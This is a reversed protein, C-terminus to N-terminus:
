DMLYAVFKNVVEKKRQCNRRHVIKEAEMGAGYITAHYRAAQYKNGTIEHGVIDSLKSKTMKEQLVFMSLVRTKQEEDKNQVAFDYVRRIDSRIGDDIFSFTANLCTEKQKKDQGPAIMPWITDFLTRLSKTVVSKRRNSLESFPKRMATVNSEELYKQLSSAEEFKEQMEDDNDGENDAEAGQKRAFKKGKEAAKVAMRRQPAYSDFAVHSFKRKKTLVPKAGNLMERIEDWSEDPCTNVFWKQGMSIQPVKMDGAKRSSKYWVFLPLDRKADDESSWIFGSKPYNNMGREPHVRARIQWYGGKEMYGSMELLWGSRLKAAIALRFSSESSQLLRRNTVVIDAIIRLKNVHELKPLTELSVSNKFNSFRVSTLSCNVSPRRSSM